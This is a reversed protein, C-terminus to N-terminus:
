SMVSPSRPHVALGSGKRTPTISSMKRKILVGYMGEWHPEMHPTQWQRLLELEAHGQMFDQVLLENEWPNLTCTIYALEAGPTLFRAATELLARQTVPFPSLSSKSTRKLKLDPRKALVGLGSCPADILIHGTFHRLPPKSGDALFLTPCPLHRRALDKTLGRLRKLNLDSCYEVPVGAELLAATKGGFGACMDWVPRSWSHLGLHWLVSQSAAGQYSFVGAQHLEALPMNAGFNQWAQITLGYGWVGIRQIANLQKVHFLELQSKFWAAKPNCRNILIATSPRRLARAGLQLAATPGYAARWFELVWLPLSYYRALCVEASAKPDDTSLAYAAPELWLDRLRALKRLCANVVRSLGVGFVKKCTEVAVFVAAHAPIRELFLLSYLAIALILRCKLPLKAFQALYRELIFQLRLFTRLVGYCLEVLLHREALPWERVNLINTVEEQVQGGQWVKELVLMAGYRADDPVLRPRKAM